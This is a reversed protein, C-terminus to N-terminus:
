IAEDDLEKMEWVGLYKPTMTPKINHSDFPGSRPKSCYSWQLVPSQEREVKIPEPMREKERALWIM